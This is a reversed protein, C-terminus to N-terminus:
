PGSFRGTRPWVVALIGIVVPAFTWVYGVPNAPVLVSGGAGQVAFLAAALLLAAAACVVVLRSAFVIRLGALLGATLLVAVIIGWPFPQDGIPVTAQHVATLLAGAFAGLLAAVICTAIRSPLAYDQFRPAGARQRRFRETDASPEPVGLAQAAAARRPSAATVDVRIGGRGAGSELTYWPLELVEAATRVAHQVRRQESDGGDAPAVVLDPKTLEIAAAIDAAIEGLDAAELSELWGTQADAVTSTYRRPPRGPWRAGADGLWRRDIVGLAGAAATLQPEHGRIGVLLTVAAERSRLTAVTGAITPLDEARALVFLVREASQVM